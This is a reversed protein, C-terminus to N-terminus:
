GITMVRANGGVAATNAAIECEEALEPSTIARDGM